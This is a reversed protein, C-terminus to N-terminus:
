EDDEETRCGCGLYQGSCRPCVEIDCGALHLEGRIVGCDGCPLAAWNKKFEEDVHFRWYRLERGYRIKRYRRGTLKVTKEDQALWYDDLWEFANYVGQAINAIDLDPIERELRHLGRTRM